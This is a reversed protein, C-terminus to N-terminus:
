CAVVWYHFVNILTQETITNVALWVAVEQINETNELVVMVM